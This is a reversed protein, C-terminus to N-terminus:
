VSISMKFKGFMVTNHTHFMLLFLNVFFRACELCHFLFIRSFELSPVPVGTFIQSFKQYLDPVDVPLNELMKDFKWTPFSFTQSFKQSYFLSMLLKCLDQSFEMGPFPVIM